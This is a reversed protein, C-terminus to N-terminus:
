KQEVAAAAESFCDDLALPPISCPRRLWAHESYGGGGDCCYLLQALESSYCQRRRRRESYLTHALLHSHLLVAMAGGRGVCSACLRWEALLCLAAAAAASGVSSAIATVAAAIAAASAAAAAATPAVATSSVM